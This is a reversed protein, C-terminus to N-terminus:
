QKVGLEKEVIRYVNSITTEFGRFTVPESGIIDEEVDFWLDNDTSVGNEQLDQFELVEYESNWRYACALDPCFVIRYANNSNKSIEDIAETVYKKMYELEAFVNHGANALNHSINKNASDITKLLEQKNM